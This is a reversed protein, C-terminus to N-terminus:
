VARTLHAVAAADTAEAEAAAIQAVREAYAEREATVDDDSWELLPAMVELVEDAAGLGRDRREIDLRVRRLLVDDLHAAGEHTVAWAVEARLFAPAEGLPRALSPDDDISALLAPLEDGYRDLLHTVRDLTWGRERAIAGAQAALARYGAAGVLPLDATVCPHARALAEGLAHDVADAAMVRYTTLKGGAIATLGPAVRTVTHERSVKTSAAEAGPKLQPQLLPRLGAYVGIIDSRRLPWSLVENAHELLYDVDAATAVPKSVDETWPTDTTGIVWYRPWPIIFLVSKETRLFIGTEADIAEKPVVIHIGKSTLVKLGGTSTALDQTAETWVGTANITRRARIEHTAGTALDTVAAGTVAGHASKLFGTVKTRSAALAGLGVATRILDIVLRADDVRADYFRIAGVLGSPDLAPALARTGKRGLHKQIPVTRHGRAGALALADYMGVGVASYSREYHHKLPWLFPQAKVLHPATTQLLRGRESLAERVLAFDLQYLYRLGGHVLKSSWTSTGSAWDGMEVVGTRLGRSAADLAIGAGTIGGGVVLVDLGEPGSMEELAATRQERTLRTLDNAEPATRANM